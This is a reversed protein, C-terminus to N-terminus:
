GARMMREGDEDMEETSKIIKLQTEFSRYFDLLGVMAEVADANAAELSGVTISIPEPGTAFDGNGDAQGGDEVDYLGDFRRVLPTESADRLMLLAIPAPPVQPDQNDRGYVTGDTGISIVTDAPVTIPNGGDDLILRGNGLELLGIETARVDGRRTFAVSGDDTQVGLVTANNM